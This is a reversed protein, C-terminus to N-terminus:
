RKAARTRKEAKVAPASRRAGKRADDSQEGDGDNAASGQPAAALSAKLAEMLDIIRAPQPDWLKFNAAVHYLRNCGALAAFVSPEIRTDGVALKFRKIKM